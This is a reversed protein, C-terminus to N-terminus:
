LVKRLEELIKNGIKDDSGWKLKAKENVIEDLMEISQISIEAKLDNDDIDIYKVDSVDNMMEVALKSIADGMEAKEIISEALFNDLDQYSIANAAEYAANLVLDYPIDAYKSFIEKALLNTKKM